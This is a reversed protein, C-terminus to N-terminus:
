FVFGKLKAKSSKGAEGLPQLPIQGRWLAQRECLLTESHGPGQRGQGAPASPSLTEWHGKPGSTRLSRSNSILEPYKQFMSQTPLLCSNVQQSIQHPKVQPPPLVQGLAAAEVIVALGIVPPTPAVHTLRQGHSSFASLATPCIDHASGIGRPTFPLSVGNPSPLHLLHANGKPDCDPGRSAAALAHYDGPRDRAHITTPDPLVSANPQVTCPDPRVYM